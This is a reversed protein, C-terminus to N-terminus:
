EEIFGNNLAWIRLQKDSFVDDPSFNDKVWGLIELEIESLNVEGEVRATATKYGM